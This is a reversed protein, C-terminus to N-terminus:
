KIELSFGHDLLWQKSFAEEDGTMHPWSLRAKHMGALTSLTAMGYITDIVSENYKEHYEMSRQLNFGRLIATM